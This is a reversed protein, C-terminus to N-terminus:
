KTLPLPNYLHPTIEAGTVTRTPGLLDLGNRALIRNVEDLSYFVVPGSSWAMDPHLDGLDTTIDDARIWAGTALRDLATNYTSM